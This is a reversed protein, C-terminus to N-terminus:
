KIDKKITLLINKANSIIENVSELMITEGSFRLSDCTKFYDYLQKKVDDEFQREKMGQPLNEPKIEVVLFEEPVMAICQIKWLKSFFVRLRSSLNSIAQLPLIKGKELHKQLRKIFLFMSYVLFFSKMNTNLLEFLKEGKKWFFYILLLSLLISFIIITIIWFTGSAALPLAPESLAMASNGSELLSSIQVQLGSLKEEGILITPLKIKGTRYAQFDIFLKKADKDLEMNRIIVYFDTNSETNEASSDPEELVIKSSETISTFQSLTYVLRGKDGVYITQPIQYSTGVNQAYGVSLAFLNFYTVILILKNRM